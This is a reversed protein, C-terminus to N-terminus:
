IRWQGVRSLEVTSDRRRRRHTSPMLTLLCSFPSGINSCEAPLPVISTIFPPSRLHRSIVATQPRPKSRRLWHLVATKQNFPVSWWFHLVVRQYNGLWSCFEFGSQVSNSMCIQILLIIESVQSNHNFKIHSVCGVSQIGYYRLAHAHVDCCITLIPGDIRCVEDLGLQREGKNALEHCVTILKVCRFAFLISQPARIVRIWQM